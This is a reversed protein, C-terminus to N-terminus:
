IDSNLLFISYNCFKHNVFACLIQAFGNVSKKKIDVTLGEEKISDFDKGEGQDVDKYM